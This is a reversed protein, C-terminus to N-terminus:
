LLVKQTTKGKRSIGAQVHGTLMLTREDSRRLQRRALINPLEYRLFHFTLLFLVVGIFIWM